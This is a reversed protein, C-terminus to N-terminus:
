KSDRLESWLKEEAKSLKKPIEVRPVVFLDWKKGFIGSKGFWKGAIKVMDGIQTAKPIKIKLKGEPHNIQVEGGLVLDFLTVSTKVYLNDWKREYFASAAISIKIYLDGDQGNLWQNGKGTFKIYVGDNIGEPIHVEVVEKQSEFPSAVDRGDKTYTKGAGECEPCAAQTQMMGFPTQITKSVKGRGHCNKCTHESIWDIKTDRSYSVKKDVGLFSEEFTITIGIQIDEGSFSRQSQGGFGGGFMSGFIDWLDVGDFGWFGGQGGFDFWGQGGDFGWFGGKRYSDYQARKKDDWLIQYAENMEQFKAKDGGRDPHHKVAAKRFAKKLDDQTADEWVGLIEYYNKKPDFDM